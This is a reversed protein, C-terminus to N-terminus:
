FGCPDSTPRFKGADWTIFRGNDEANAATFEANASLDSVWTVRLRGTVPGPRFRNYEEQWVHGGATISSLYCDGDMTGTMVPQPEVTVNDYTTGVAPPSFPAPRTERTLAAGAVLAAVVVAVTGGLVWWRTRRRAATTDVDDPNGM